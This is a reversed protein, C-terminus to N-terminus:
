QSLAKFHVEMPLSIHLLTKNGCMKMHKAVDLNVIHQQLDHILIKPTEIGSLSGVPDLGIPGWKRCAMENSHVLFDFTM